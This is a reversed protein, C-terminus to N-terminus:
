EAVQEEFGCILGDEFEFIVQRSRTVDIGAVGGIDDRVTKQEITFRCLVDGARSSCSVNTFEYAEVPAGAVSVLGMTVDNQRAECVLKQATELDRNNLADLYAVATGPDGNACSAVGFLLLSMFLLLLFKKM